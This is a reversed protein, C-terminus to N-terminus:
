VNRTFLFIENKIFRLTFQRHHYFVGGRSAQRTHSFNDDFRQLSAHLMFIRLSTCFVYYRM